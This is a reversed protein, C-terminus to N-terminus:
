ASIEPEVTYVIEVLEGYDPIITFEIRNFYENYIWFSYEQVEVFVKISDIEPTKSLGYVETLEIEHSADKVGESWDDSCIDILVGDFYNTADEYNTGLAM